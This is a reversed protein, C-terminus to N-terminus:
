GHQAIVRRLLAMAAIDKPRAPRGLWGPTKEKEELLGRPSITRCRLGSLERLPGKLVDDSWRAEHRFGATYVVGPGKELLDTTNM